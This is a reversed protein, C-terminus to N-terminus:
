APCEIGTEVQKKIIYSHFPLKNTMFTGIPNM